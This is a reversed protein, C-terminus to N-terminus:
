SHNRDSGDLLEYFERATSPPGIEVGEVCATEGSFGRLAFKIKRICRDYAEHDIMGQHTFRSEDCDLGLVMCSDFTYSVTACYAELGAENHCYIAKHLDAHGELYRMVEEVPGAFVLQEGRYVEERRSLHQQVTRPVFNKLFSAALDFSRSRVLV